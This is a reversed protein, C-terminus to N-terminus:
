SKLPLDIRFRRQKNDHEVQVLLQGGSNDVAVIPLTLKNVGAQLDTKWSLERQGAYGDLEIGGDLVVTITAGPLDKEMEIAVNLDRPEGLTVQYQPTDGPARLSEPLIGTALVAVMAAAAAAAGLGTGLWFRSGSATRQGANTSRRMVREFLGDPPLVEDQAAIQRLATVAQSAARCDDCDRLHAALQRQELEALSGDNMEVLRDYTDECNMM